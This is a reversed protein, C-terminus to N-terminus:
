ISTPCPEEPPAKKPTIGFHRALRQVDRPRFVRKGALRETEPVQGSTIAYVVRYPPLQLLRAVDRLSYQQPRM